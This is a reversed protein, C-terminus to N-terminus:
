LSVMQMCNPKPNLLILINRIIYNITQYSLDNTKTSKSRVLECDSDYDPDKDSYYGTITISRVESILNHL